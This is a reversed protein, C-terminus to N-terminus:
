SSSPDFTSSPSTGSEKASFTASNLFSIMSAATSCSSTNSSFYRAPSSIVSSSSTRAIRVAVMAPLSNGTNQPEAKLFLPTCAISSPTM